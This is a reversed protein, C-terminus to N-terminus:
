CGSLSSTHEKGGGELDKEGCGPLSRSATTHPKGLLFLRLFWVWEAVDAKRATQELDRPVEYSQLDRCFAVM